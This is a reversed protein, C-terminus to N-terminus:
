EYIFKIRGYFVFIVCVVVAGDQDLELLHRYLLMPMELAFQHETDEITYSYSM